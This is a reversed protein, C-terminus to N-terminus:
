ALLSGLAAVRGLLIVLRCRRAGGGRQLHLGLRDPLCRGLLRCRLVRQRRARRRSRRRRGGGLERRTLRAVCCRRGFFRWQHDFVRVDSCAPRCGGRLGDRRQLTRGLAM